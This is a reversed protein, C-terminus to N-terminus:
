GPRFSALMREIAGPQGTMVYGTGDIVFVVDTAPEPECDSMVQRGAVGAVVVDTWASAPGGCPRATAELREAYDTMWAAADMGDPLPQAAIGVFTIGAGTPPAFFRDVYPEEKGVIAGFPWSATAPTPRWAAPHDIAYGYQLSTFTVPSAGATPSAALTPSPSPAPSPSATPASMIPGPAAPGTLLVGGVLVIATAAVALLVRPFTMPRPEMWSPWLPRRRQPTTRTAVEIARATSAPLTTPGDILWAQVLVDPERTTSM